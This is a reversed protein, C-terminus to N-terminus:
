KDLELVVIIAENIHVVADSDGLRSKLELLMEVTNDAPKQKFPWRALKLLEPGLLVAASAAVGVVIVWNDKLLEIM